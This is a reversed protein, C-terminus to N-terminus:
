RTWFHEPWRFLSTVRDQVGFCNEYRPQAFLNASCIFGPLRSGPPLLRMMKERRLTYHPTRARFDVRKAIFRALKGWRMTLASTFLTVPSIKKSLNNKGEISRLQQGTLIAARSRNRRKTLRFYTWHASRQRDDVTLAIRLSHLNELFLFFIRFM